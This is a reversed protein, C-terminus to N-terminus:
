GEEEMAKSIEDEFFDSESMNEKAEKRAVELVGINVDIVKAIIYNYENRGEDNRKTRYEGTVTIPTWKGCMDNMFVALKGRAHVATYNANKKYREVEPVWINNYFKLSFICFDDDHLETSEMFKIDSNIVGSIVMVNTNTVSRRGPEKKPIFSDYM